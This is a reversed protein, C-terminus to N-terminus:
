TLHSPFCLVAAFYNLDLRVLKWLKYSRPLQACAREMVFAQEVVTGHRSKFEIYALWPKVSAPNRLIDQEYVSDENSQTHLSNTKAQSRVRTPSRRVVLHLQPQRRVGNPTPVIPAMIIPFPRNLLFHSLCSKAFLAPPSIVTLQVDDLGASFTFSPRDWLPLSAVKVIRLPRNTDSRDTDHGDPDDNVSQIRRSGVSRLRIIDVSTRSAQDRLKQQIKRKPERQDTVCM